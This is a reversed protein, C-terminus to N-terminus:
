KEILYFCQLLYFWSVPDFLFLLVNKALGDTTRFHIQPLPTPFHTFALLPPLSRTCTPTISPSLLGQM